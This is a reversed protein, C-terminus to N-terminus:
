ISKGWRHSTCNSKKPVSHLKQWAAEFCEMSRPSSRLRLITTCIISGHCTMAARRACLRRQDKKKKKTEGPYRDYWFGEEERTTNLSTSSYSSQSEVAGESESAVANSRSTSRVSGGGSSSGKTKRPPRDRKPVAVGGDHSESGEGGGSGGTSEQRHGATSRHRRSHRSGESSERVPSDVTAAGSSQHRRSQRSERHPSDVSHGAVSPNRRSSRRAPFESMERASSDQAEGIEASPYWSPRWILIQRNKAVLPFLRPAGSPFNPPAGEAVPATFPASSSRFDNMQELNKFWYCGNSPPGITM